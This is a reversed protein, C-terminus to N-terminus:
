VVFPSPSAIHTSREWMAEHPASVSADIPAEQCSCSELLFYLPTYPMLGRRFAVRRRTILWVGLGKSTVEGVWTTGNM